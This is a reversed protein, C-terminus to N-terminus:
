NEKTTREFLKNAVNRAKTLDPTLTTSPWDTVVNRGDVVAVVYADSAAVRVSRLTVYREDLPTDAPVALARHMAAHNDFPNPAPSTPAPQHTRNHSRMPDHLVCVTSDSQATRQCRQGNKTTTAACQPRTSPM